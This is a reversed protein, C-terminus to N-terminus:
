CGRMRREELERQFQDRADAYKKFREVERRHDAKAKVVPDIRRRVPGAKPTTDWGRWRGM